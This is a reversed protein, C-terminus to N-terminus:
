TAQYSARSFMSMAATSFREKSLFSSWQLLSCVVGQEPMALSPTLNDPTPRMAFVVIVVCGSLRGNPWEPLRM